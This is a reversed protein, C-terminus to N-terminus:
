NERAASFVPSEGGPPNPLLSWHSQIARLATEGIPVLREKQGEGSVCLRKMGIWIRPWCAAFRVSVCVVPISRKWFPLTATCLFEARIRASAKADPPVLQATRGSANGDTRSYPIEALTKCNQADCSEQDTFGRCCRAPDPIQLFTRLACFRLQIAPAGWITAGWSVFTHASTM